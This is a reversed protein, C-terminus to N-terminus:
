LEEVIRTELKKFTLTGLVMVFLTFGVLYIMSQTGPVRGHYLMDRYANVVHVMPNVSYIARIPINVGGVRTMEPIYGDMTYVVPTLYFWAQLAIGILHTMDRFYVNIASLALSYGLALFAQIVALLLVFPVWRLVVHGFMAYVAGLVSLEILFSVFCALVTSGVIYERPFYVKKLLGAQAVLSGTSSGISASLFNWPLLATSLYLTFNKLGSPDGIPAAGKLILKFVVTFIAISSLPNLLSWFWGLASRKYKGRLERQTLSWLLERGQWLESLSAGGQFRRLEGTNSGVGASSSM